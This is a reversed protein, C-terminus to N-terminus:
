FKQLHLCYLMNISGLVLKKSCPFLPQGKWLVLITTSTLISTNHLLLVRPNRISTDFEMSFRFLISSLPHLISSLPFIPSFPLLLYHFDSFPPYLSSHLFCLILFFSIKLVFDVRLFTFLCSLMQVLEYCSWYEYGVSCLREGLICSSWWGFICQVALALRFCFIQYLLIPEAWDFGILKKRQLLISSIRRVAMSSLFCGCSGMWEDLLCNLAFISDTIRYFMLCDAQM